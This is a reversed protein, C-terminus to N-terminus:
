PVQCSVSRTKKEFAKAAKTSPIWLFNHALEFNLVRLVIKKAKRARM